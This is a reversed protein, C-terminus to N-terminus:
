WFRCDLLFADSAFSTDKTCWIIRSITDIHRLNHSVIKRYSSGAQRVYVDVEHLYKAAKESQGDRIAFYAILNNLLFRDREGPQLGSELLANSIEEMDDDARSINAYLQPVESMSNSAVQSLFVSRCACRKLVAKFYESSFGGQLLDEILPEMDWFAEIDGIVCKSVLYDMKCLLIRRYHNEARCSFFDLATKFLHQARKPAFFSIGRAYDMILTASHSRFDDGQFEESLLKLRQAYTARGNEWQDLLLYTVMRRNFCTDYAQEVRSLDDGSLHKSQLMHTTGSQILFSNEIVGDPKLAWFHQNLLESGASYKEPVDENAFTYIMELLHNALTQDGCHVLCYAYSFLYYFEERTYTDPKRGEVMHYYCSCYHLAAGFQTTQMYHHILEKIKNEYLRLYKKGCEILMSLIHNSDFLEAYNPTNILYSLFQGTLANSYRAKRLQIYSRIYYDHYPFILGDQSIILNKAFLLELDTQVPRNGFGSFNMLINKSIGKKFRYLIDLLYYQGQLGAFRNKLIQTQGKSASYTYIIHFINDSSGGVEERLTRLLECTLLPSPSLIKVAVRRLAMPSLQFCTGLTEAMDTHTLGNLEFANPTLKMFHMEAQRNPFRGKTASIIMVCDSQYLDLDDIIRYIFDAQPKNLYQFDDLLLIKGALAARTHILSHTKRRRKTLQEVVDKAISADFCGDFLRGLSADDFLDRTNNQIALAKQQEIEKHSWSSRDWFINGYYLFLVIRCLLLYNTLANRDSEFSVITMDRKLCFTEYVSKLMFSKGMGSGACITILSGSAGDPLADIFTKIKNILQLQQAYVVKVPSNAVIEIERTVRSYQVGNIKFQLNVGGSFACKAKLLLAFTSLGCEVSLHDPDDYNPHKVIEFPFDVTISLEAMTKVNSSISVTLLYIDGILMVKRASFSKFDNSVMDFFAANQVWVVKATAQHAIAHDDWYKAYIGPNLLLWSELQDALVCSVKMGKIRAGLIARDLLEDPVRTNTVFVILRVNGQILGSLITPDIDQRRLARGTEKFKAEEWVDFSNDEGFYVEKRQADKNGDRTKGTPYWTYQPYLDQVYALAIEEFKHPTEASGYKAILYEWDIM